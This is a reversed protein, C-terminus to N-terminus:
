SERQIHEVGFSYFYIINNDNLYLAIWYIGISKFEALNIVYAEDEKPLNNPSM